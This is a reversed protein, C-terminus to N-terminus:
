ADTRWLMLRFLYVQDMYISFDFPDEESQRPEEAWSSYSAGLEEHSYTTHFRVEETAGDAAVALNKMLRHKYPFVLTSVSLMSWNALALTALWVCVMKRGVQGLFLSVVTM